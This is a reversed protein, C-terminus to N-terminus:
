KYVVLRGAKRVIQRWKGIFDSSQPRCGLTDGLRRACWSQARDSAMKACNTACWTGVVFLQSVQTTLVLPPPQQSSQRTHVSKPLTVLWLWKHVTAPLTWSRWADCGTFLQDSYYLVPNTLLSTPNGAFALSGKPGPTVIVVLFLGRRM